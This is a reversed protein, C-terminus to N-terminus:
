ELYKYFTFFEDVVLKSEDFGKYESEENEMGNKFNKENIIRVGQDDLIRQHAAKYQGSTSNQYMSQSEEMKHGGVGLVGAKKNEYIERHPANGSGDNKTNSSRSECSYSTQGDRTTTTSSSFTSYSYSSQGNGGGFQNMDMQPFNILNFGPQQFNNANMSQMQIQMQRGIDM